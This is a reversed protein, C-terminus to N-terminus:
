YFLTRNRMGLPYLAAQAAEGGWTFDAHWDWHDEFEARSWTDEAGNTNTYQFTDTAKDYGTMVVYHLKAVSGIGIFKKGMSVLAIVPKGELLLEIMRGTNSNKEQKTEPRYRRLADLLTDSTTGLGFDSIIGESEVDSKFKTYSVDVNYARLFRSGSSPGCGWFDTQPDDTPVNTVRVSECQSVKARGALVTATDYGAGGYLKDGFGGGGDLTDDGTGGLLQDAGDGGHIFDNGGGGAALDNENGGFISDNGGAGYLTDKGNEGYLVNPGFDLVGYGAYIVDNGGRGFMQDTGYGGDIYDRGAAGFILDDGDGGRITNRFVDDYKANTDGYLEDAGGNGTIVDAGLNGFILDAASGGILTDDGTGGDASVRAMTRNEFRDNGGNGRFVIKGGFVQDVRVDTTVGNEVVRFTNLNVEPIGSSGGRDGRSTPLVYNMSVTVVDNGEGSNIQLDGGSNVFVTPVLRDHLSELQPVFRRPTPKATRDSILWSKLNQFM